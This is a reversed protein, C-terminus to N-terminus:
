KRHSAIPQPVRISGDLDKGREHHRLRLKTADAINKQVSKSDQLQISTPMVPQGMVQLVASDVKDADDPAIRLLSHFAQRVRLTMPTEDFRMQEIFHLADPLVAVSALTKEVHERVYFLNFM